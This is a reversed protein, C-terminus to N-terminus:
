IWVFCQQNLAVLAGEPSFIERTEAVYGDLGAVVRNRCYLPAQPDLEAPDHLWTLNFGITAVPRPAPEVVAGAPWWVDAYAAVDAATLADPRVRPRMFGGSTPEAGATFPAHGDLRFEFHKAFRPFAPTWPVPSMGRWEPPEVRTCPFATPRERPAGLVVTAHARVEDGQSLRVDLTTVASGRRLPAVEIRAEGPQVAGCIEASMTRPARTPDDEFRVAAHCLAAIVLGGFAGRGQQWDDPVHWSFAAQDLREASVLEVLTAAMEAVTTM